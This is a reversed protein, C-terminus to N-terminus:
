IKSDVEKDDFIDDIEDKETNNMDPVVDEDDDDYTYPIAIPEEEKVPTYDHFGIRNKIYKSAQNSKESLTRSADLVIVSSKSMCKGM